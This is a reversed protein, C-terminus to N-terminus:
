QYQQEAVPVQTRKFQSPTVGTFREFMKYFHNYNNYGCAFAIEYVTQGTREMLELANQIRQYNIFDKISREFQKQFANGLYNSDLFFLESLSKVTIDEALHALIYDRVEYLHPRAEKKREASLQAIAELLFDTLLQKSPYWEPEIKALFNDAAIGRAELLSFTESLVKDIQGRLKFCCCHPSFRQDLESYEQPYILDVTNRLALTDLLELARVVEQCVTEETAAGGYLGDKHSTADLEMRLEEFVEEIEQHNLPKLLFHKVKSHLAKQAYDFTGYGSLIVFRVDCGVGRAREILSLGDMSPMRIDTIVVHPRYRRIDEWAKDGNDSSGCITFGASQWDMLLSLGEIVSPEDDVIYLRYLM